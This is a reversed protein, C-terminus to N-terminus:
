APKPATTETSSYRNMSDTFGLGANDAYQEALEHLVSHGRTAPDCLVTNWARARKLSKRDLWCILMRKWAPIAEIEKNLDRKM